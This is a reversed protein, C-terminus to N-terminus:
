KLYVLKKTEIFVENNKNRQTAELRYFYIGSSLGLTNFADIKYKHNGSYLLFDNTVWFVTRGTIDFIKLKVYSDKPLSFEITTTPNFPNPYNQKLIYVGPIENNNTIGTYIIPGGGNTTHINYSWGTLSDTFDIGAYGFHYSTDPQQFGWNVGSNTSKWIVGRFGNSPFQRVGADGYIINQNIIKFNKINNIVIGNDSPMVYSVWNLGGDTTKLMADGGWTAFGTNENIFELQWIGHGTNGVQFWNNGSNTTKYMSVDSSCWGYYEGNIKYKLFFIVGWGIQGLYPILTVGGNTTKWIENYNGNFGSIWGTDKNIFSIGRYVNGTIAVSDWTIGKNFTRYIVHDGNYRSGNGYITNSDMKQMNFLNGSLTNSWNNGNNTTRWVNLYPLSIVGTNNDFFKIDYTNGSVPWPQLIWQPSCDEIFLSYHIIFFFIFIYFKLKKM